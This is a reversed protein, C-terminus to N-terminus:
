RPVLTVSETRPDYLIRAEGRDLQRRVDAIKREFSAEVAGYDTGERLVYHELIGQLAAPSLLAPDIEVPEPIEGSDEVRDM